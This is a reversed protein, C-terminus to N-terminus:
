AKGRRRLARECLRCLRDRTPIDYVQYLDPRAYLSCLVRTSIPYPAAPSLVHVKSGRKARFRNRYLSLDIM